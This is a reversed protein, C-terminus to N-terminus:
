FVTFLYNNKEWYFDIINLLEYNGREPAEKAFLAGVYDERFSYNLARGLRAKFIEPDSHAECFVVGYHNVNDMARLVLQTKGTGNEGVLLYYKGKTDGAIVNFIKQYEERAFYGEKIKSQLLPAPKLFAQLM